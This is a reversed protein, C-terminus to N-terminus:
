KTHEKKEMDTEYGYSIYRTIHRGIPVGGNRTLGRIEGKADMRM